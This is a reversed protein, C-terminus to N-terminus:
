RLAVPEARQKNDTCNVEYERITEINFVILEGCLDMAWTFVPLYMFFVLSRFFENCVFEFFNFFHSLTVSKVKNLSTSVTLFYGDRPSLLKM